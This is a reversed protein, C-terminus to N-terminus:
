LLHGEEKDAIISSCSSASFSLRGRELAWREEAM